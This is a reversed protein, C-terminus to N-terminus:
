RMRRSTVYAVGTGAVLALPLIEEPGTEPVATVTVAPPTTVVVGETVPATTAPETTSATSETADATASPMATSDSTAPVSTSTNNTEDTTSVTPKKGFNGIIFTIAWIAIGLIVLGVLVTVIIFRLNQSKSNGYNQNM